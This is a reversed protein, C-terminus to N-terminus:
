EVSVVHQANGRAGGCSLVAMFDNAVDLPAAKLVNRRRMVSRGPRSMKDTQGYPGVRTSYGSFGLVIQSAVIGMESRVAVRSTNFDPEVVSVNSLSLPLAVM